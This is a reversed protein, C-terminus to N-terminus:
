PLHPSDTRRNLAATLPPSHRKEQAIRVRDHLLSDYLWMMDRTLRQHSFETQVRARAARGLSEALRPDHLLRIVGHGLAEGNRVPVLVACAADGVAEKFSPHDTFVCAKGMAMLELMTLSFGEHLSAMVAVDMAEIYPLYERQFGAFVFCDELGLDRVQQRIEGELPGDGVLLFTVRGVNRKVQAAAEVFFRPGKQECLRGIAGVLPVDPDIGLRRKAERVDVTPTFRDLDIGCYSRYVKKPDRGLLRIQEERSSDSDTVILRTMEDFPIVEYRSLLGANASPPVHETRLVTRIGASWAALTARRGGNHNSTQIHVVSTNTQRFIGALAMVDHLFSGARSGDFTRPTLVPVGASEIEDIFRPPCFRINHGSIVVIPSYRSRDLNQVLDRIYVEVGGYTIGDHVFAVTKANDGRRSALGARAV